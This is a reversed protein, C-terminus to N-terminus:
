KEYVGKAQTDGYTSSSNNQSTLTKGDDGMTWVDTGKVETQQENFNLMLDYTITLSKGDDSWKSSATRTSNHYITTKTEKGDYSLTETNTVEDGSMSVSTKAITISDPTQTVKITHAAYNAFQGLDSKAENLKWEGSFDPHDTLKTFSLLLAPAILFVSLKKLSYM